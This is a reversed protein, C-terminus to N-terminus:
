RANERQLLSDSPVRQFKFKRGLPLLAPCEESKRKRERKSKSTTMQVLIFWFGRKQTLIFLNMRGSLRIRIYFQNLSVWLGGEKFPEGRAGQVERSPFFDRGEPEEARGSFIRGTLSLTKEAHEQLTGRVPSIQEKTGSFQWTKEALNKVRWSLTTKLM